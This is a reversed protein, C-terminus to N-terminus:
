LWVLDMLWLVASSESGVAQFIMDMKTVLTRRCNHEMTPCSMIYERQNFTTNSSWAPVHILHKLPSILTNTHLMCHSIDLLSRAHSYISRDAPKKPLCRFVSIKIHQCVCNAALFGRIKPICVTSSSLMSTASRRSWSRSFDKWMGYLM